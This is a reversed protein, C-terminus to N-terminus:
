AMRMKKGNTKKSVRREIRSAVPRTDQVDKTSLVLRQGAAAAYRWLLDITLNQTEGNEVRELVTSDIGCRASVDRLTLGAAERAAKLRKIVEQAPSHVVNLGLKTATGSAILEEPGPHWDRFAERIARQEARQQPTWQITKRANASM